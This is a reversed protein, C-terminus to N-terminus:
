SGRYGAKSDSDLPFSIFRLCGKEEERMELYPIRIYPRKEDRNNPSLVSM